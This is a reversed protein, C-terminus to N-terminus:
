SHSILLHSTRQLAKSVKRMKRKFRNVRLHPQTLVMAVCYKSFNGPHIRLKRLVPLLQSSARGERKLEIILAHTFAIEDEEGANQFHLDFDLTLRETKHLNVLTIRKFRNSLTPRLMTFDYGTEQRLFDEGAREEMVAEPSVVPVRQKHTKGHNDKRKVELFSCDDQLYTRVRVKTRPRVGRQHMEFFHYDAMDFYNTSYGCISEGAVQQVYYHGQLAQLLAPLQSIHAVFKTDTRRMLRIAKMEALTIPPFRSLLTALHDM